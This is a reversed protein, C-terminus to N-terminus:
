VPENLGQWDMKLKDLLAMKRALAKRRPPSLEPSEKEAKELASKVTAWRPKPVPGKQEM